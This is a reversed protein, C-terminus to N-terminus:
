SSKAKDAANGRRYALSSYPANLVVALANSIIASVELGVGTWTVLGIVDGVGVCICTGGAAGVGLGVKVDAGIGLRGAVTPGAGM